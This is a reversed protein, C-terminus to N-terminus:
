VRCAKTFYGEVPDHRNKNMTGTKIAIVGGGKM